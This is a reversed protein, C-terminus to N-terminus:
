SFKMQVTIGDFRLNPLFMPFLRKEAVPSYEVTFFWALAKITQYVFFSMQTQHLDADRQFYSYNISLSNALEAVM